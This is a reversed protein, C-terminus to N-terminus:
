ILCKLTEPHFNLLHPTASTLLPNERVVGGMEPCHIKRRDMLRVMFTTLRYLAIAVELTETSKNYHQKHEQHDSHRWQRKALMGHRWCFCLIHQEPDRSWLGSLLSWFKMQIIRYDQFIELQSLWSSRRYIMKHRPAIKPAPRLILLVLCWFPGTRKQETIFRLSHALTIRNGNLPSVSVWM